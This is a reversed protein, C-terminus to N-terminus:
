ARSRLPNAPKRDEDRKRDADPRNPNAVAATIYAPIKPAAAITQSTGVALAALAVGFIISKKLHGERLPKREIARVCKLPDICM